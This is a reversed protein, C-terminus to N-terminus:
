LRSHHDGIHMQPLDVTNPQNPFRFHLQSVSVRGENHDGGEVIGANKLFTHLRARHVTHERRQIVAGQAVTDAADALLALGAHSIHGQPVVAIKLRLDGLDNVLDANRCMDLTILIEATGDDHHDLVVLDDIGNGLNKIGRNGLMVASGGGAHLTGNAMSDLHSPIPAIQVHQVAKEAVGNLIGAPLGGIRFEDGHDCVIEAQLVFGYRGNSVQYRQGM